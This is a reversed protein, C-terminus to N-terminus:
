INHGKLSCYLSLTMTMLIFLVAILDNLFKSFFSWLIHKMDNCFCYSTRATAWYTLFRVPIWSSSFKIEPRMLPYLIQHQWSCHHLDCIHSPDWTATSTAYALLQLESKVGIAQSSGYTVPTATFLCFLCVFYWYGCQELLTAKRSM